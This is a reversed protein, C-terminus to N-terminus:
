PTPSPPRSVSPSPSATGGGTIPELVTEYLTDDTIWYLM